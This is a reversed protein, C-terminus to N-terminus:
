TACRRRRSGLCFMLLLATSPAPIAQFYVNDAGGIELVVRDFAFDTVYGFFHPGPTIFNPVDVAFTGLSLAGIYFDIDLSGGGTVLPLDFAVAHLPASFNFAGPNCCPDFGSPIGAWGDTSAGPNEKFIYWPGGVFEASLTLGLAGYYNSPVVMSEGTLSVFDVTSTPGALSSWGTHDDFFTTVSGMAIGATHAVISTIWGIHVLHSM